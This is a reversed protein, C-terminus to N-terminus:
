VAPRKKTCGQNSGHAHRKAKGPARPPDGKLSSSAPEFSEARMSQGVTQFRPMRQIVAARADGGGGKGTMGIDRSTYTGKYTGIPFRSGSRPVFQWESAVDRSIRRRPVARM